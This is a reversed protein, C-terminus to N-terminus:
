MTSLYKMTLVSPKITKNAGGVLYVAEQQLESCAALVEAKEPWSFEVGDLHEYQVPAPIIHM